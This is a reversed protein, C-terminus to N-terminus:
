SGPLTQGSVDELVVIAARAGAPISVSIDAEGEYIATEEAGLTEETSAMQATCAGDLMHIVVVSGTSTAPSVEGSGTMISLAARYYRRDVMVNFDRIAAGRLIGTVVADGDFDVPQNLELPVMRGDEFQLDMGSGHVVAITRDIGPFSSFAGTAGVDAVSIRWSWAQDDARAPGSAIETTVGGGNKWPVVILQDTTIKRYGSFEM